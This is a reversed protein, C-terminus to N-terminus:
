PRGSGGLAPPQENLKQQQQQNQNQHKQRDRLQRLGLWARSLLTHETKETLAKILEVQLGFRDLWSAGPVCGLRVLSVCLNACEWAGLSALDAEVALLMLRMWRDPPPRLPPHRALSYALVVVQRGLVTTAAMGAAATRGGSALLILRPKRGELPQIAGESAGLQRPGHRGQSAGDGRVFDGACVAGSGMSPSPPPAAPADADDSSVMAMRDSGEATEAGGLAQGPNSMGPGTATAAVSAVAPPLAIAMQHYSARYVAMWLDDPLRIDLPSPWGRTPQTPAFRACTHTRLGRIRGGNSPHGPATASQHRTSSRSVTLGLLADLLRSIFLLPAGGDRLTRICAAFTTALIRNQVVDRMWDARRAAEVLEAVLPLLVELLVIPPAALLHAETRAAVHALWEAAAASVGGDAVDVTTLAGSSQIAGAAAAAPETSPEAATPAVHCDVSIALKAEGEPQNQFSSTTTPQVPMAAAVAVAMRVTDTLDSPPAALGAAGDGGASARMLAALVSVPPWLRLRRLAGLLTAVQRESVKQLPAAGDGGSGEAIRQVAALLHPGLRSQVLWGIRQRRKGPQGGFDVNETSADGGSGCNRVDREAAFGRAQLERGVSNKKGSFHGANQSRAATMIDTANGGGSRHPATSLRRRLLRLKAVSYPLRRQPRRAIAYSLECALAVVERASCTQLLALPGPLTLYELLATSLDLSPRFGLRRLGALYSCWDRLPIPRPSLLQQEHRQLDQENEIGASATRVALWGAEWLALRLGTRRLDPPPAPFGPKSSGSTFRRRRGPPTIRGARSISSTRGSSSGDDGSIGGGGSDGDCHSINRERWEAVSDRIDAAASALAGLLRVSDHLRPAETVGGLSSAAWPVNEDAVGGGDCVGSRITLIRQQQLQLEQSLQQVAPRVLASAMRYTLVPPMPIRLRRLSSVLQIVTRPPLPPAAEKAGQGASTVMVAAAAASGGCARELAARVRRQLGPAITLISSQQPEQPASLQQLVAFSWLLQALSPAPLRAIRGRATIALAALIDQSPRYRLKGVAWVCGVLVSDPCGGGGGSAVAAAAGAAATTTKAGLSYGSVYHSAGQHSGVAGASVVVPELQLPLLTPLLRRLLAEVLEAPPRASAVRVAAAMGEASGQAQQQQQGPRGQPQPQPLHRERQQSSSLQVQITTQSSSTSSESALDVATVAASLLSFVDRPDWRTYSDGSSSSIGVGATGRLPERCLRLAATYLLRWMDNDVDATSGPAVKLLALANALAALSRPGLQPTVERRWEGSRQSEHRSEAAQTALQRRLVRSSAGVAASLWSSSLGEASREATSAAATINAEATSPPSLGARSTDTNLSRLAGRDYLRGVSWIVTIMMDPPMPLLNWQPPHRQQGQPPASLPPSHLTHTLASSGLQRQHQNQWRHHPPPSLEQPTQHAPQHHAPHSPTAASPEVGSLVAATCTLMAKSAQLLATVLKLPPSAEFRQPGASPMVALLAPSYCDELWTASPQLRLLGVGYLLSSLEQAKCSKLRSATCAHLLESGVARLRSVFRRAAGSVAQGGGDSCFLDGGGRGGCTAAAAAVGFAYVANCLDRGTLPLPPMWDKDTAATASQSLLPPAAAGALLPMALAEWWAARLTLGLKAAAWLSNSAARPQSLVESGMALRVGVAMAVEWGFSAVDLAEADAGPIGAGVRRRGGFRQRLSPAPWDATELQALHTLIAVLHLDNLVGGAAPIAAAATAAIDGNDIPTTGVAAGTRESAVLMQTNKVSTVTGGPMELDAAPQALRYLRQLETVTACTKIARMVEAPQAPLESASGIASSSSSHSSGGGDDSAWRRRSATAATRALAAAAEPGLAPRKRQRGYMDGHRAQVEPDLSDLGGKEPDTRSGRRRLGATGGADKSRHLGYTTSIDSASPAYTLGRDGQIGHTGGESGSGSGSRSRIRTKVDRSIVEAGDGAHSSASIHLDDRKQGDTIWSTKPAENSLNAAATGATGVDSYNENSRGSSNYDSNSTCLICSNIGDSGSKPVPAGNGRHWIATPVGDGGPIGSAATVAAAAIVASACLRRRRRYRCRCISRCAGAVCRFEGHRQPGGGGGWGGSAQVLPFCWLGSFTGGTSSRSCTHSYIRTSPRLGDATLTDTCTLSQRQRHPPREPVGWPQSTPATSKGALPFIMVSSSICSSLHFTTATHAYTQPQPYVHTAKGGFPPGATLLNRRSGSEM